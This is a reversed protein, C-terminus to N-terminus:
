EFFFEFKLEWLKQKFAQQTSQVCNNSIVEVNKYWITGGPIFLNRFIVQGKNNIDSINSSHIRLQGMVVVDRLKLVKGNEVTLDMFQNKGVFLDQLPCTGLIYM